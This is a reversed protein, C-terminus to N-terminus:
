FENFPRYIYIYIHQYVQSNQDETRIAREHEKITVKLM